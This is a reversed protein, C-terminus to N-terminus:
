VLDNEYAFATAASRSTVGLKTFINAVHRAVTKESLVLDAAVARNTKGTAILRLVELERPTLGGVPGSESGLAALEELRRVDAAAGLERFLGLAADLEMQEGDRDGLNHLALGILSRARAVEYPVDLDTWDACAQRLRELASRPQGEALLVAGQAQEATARFVQTELPVVLEVLEDAAGRATTPDGSALAIEVLAPLLLAKKSPTHAEDAARVISARATEPQGQALRLLALGPQPDFGRRSAERFAGEAEDFNGLLRHLEGLTYQARAQVPHEGLRDRASNVEEIAELWSGRMQKIEARHILCQGRYPVLDPQAECWRTLAETWEQARRLDLIEFCGEIVTCYLNGTLAASLEGATLSVMGLDLMAVGESVRGLRLLARGQGVLATAMLDAELFRQGIEAARVFIGLSAQPDMDVMPIAMPLLLYGREVCDEDIEDLLGQARGFWGMAPAFEGRNIMGFGLHFACRAARIPDGRELFAEHARTWAADCEADRGTLFAATAMLEMDEPHLSAETDAKMFQEFASTWAQQVYAQQAGELASGSTM